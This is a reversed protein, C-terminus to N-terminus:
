LCQHRLPNAPIKLSCALFLLVVLVGPLPFVKSPSFGLLSRHEGAYFFARETSVSWIFCSFGFFLVERLLPYLGVFLSLKV